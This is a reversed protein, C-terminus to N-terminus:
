TQRNFYEFARCKYKFLVLPRYSAKLIWYTAKRVTICTRRPDACEERISSKIANGRLIKFNIVSMNKDAIEASKNMEALPQGGRLERGQWAELKTGFREAVGAQSILLYIPM